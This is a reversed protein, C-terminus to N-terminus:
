ALVTFSKTAPTADVNGSWDIARVSVQHNGNTLAPTKWGSTCAVWPRQDARCQFTAPESASFTFSPTATRYLGQAGTITTEPPKPDRAYKAHIQLGQPPVTVEHSIRPDDSWWNFALVQGNYTVTRPAALITRFGIVSRRTLPWPYDLAGYSFLGPAGEPELTIEVPATEGDLRTARTTVLGADDTVSAAVEYHADTDHDRLPTFTVSPGTADTLVHTHDNHRLEVHWQVAPSLDHGAADSAAATLTVPDGDRYTDPGDVLLSPAQVGSRVTVTATDSAGSPDSVTVTADYTGAAYDHGAQAGAADASGDGFDWSYTLADGDPDSSAGADLTVHLPAEGYPPTATARAVPPRNGDVPAFRTINFFNATYLLGDPGVRMDVGGYGTAFPHRTPTGSEDFSLRDLFGLDIDGFMVDGDLDPYAASHLEPGGLIVAGHGPEHDYMYTAGRMGDPTGEKAYLAQCKSNNARPAFHDGGEYCPWGYNGGGTVHDLEEHQGEGVDGAWLGGQSAFDFRFPNRFGTAYVKTCVQTLDNTGPCFPHGALGRGSRSIHLIKGAYSATDFTRFPDPANTASFTGDGNGVWLTGDPASRVTGGVHSVGDAPICDTTNSPAPCAQDFLSPKYSGLIITEPSSPNAVTNNTNVTVRTLRTTKPGSADGGGPEYTYLLYLWHNTAFASDVAIGTLGRDVQSNVHSSIDLLTSVTGDPKVVQVVGTKGAVFLRGDPAFDMGVGMKVNAYTQEAYGGVPTAAHAASAGVLGLM